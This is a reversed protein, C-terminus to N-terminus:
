PHCFNPLQLLGNIFLYGRVLEYRTDTRDSYHLYQEFSLTTLATQTM